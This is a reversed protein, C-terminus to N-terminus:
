TGFFKFVLYLLYNFLPAGILPQNFQDMTWKGFLAMNRANHVWLGEDVLENLNKLPSVDAHLQYLRLFLMFAFALVVFLHTDIFNLLKEKIENKM